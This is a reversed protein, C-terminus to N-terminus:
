DVWAEAPTFRLYPMQIHMMRQLCNIVSVPLFYDPIFFGSLDM